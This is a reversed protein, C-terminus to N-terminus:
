RGQGGRRHRAVDLEGLGTFGFGGVSAGRTSRTQTVRFEGSRGDDPGM